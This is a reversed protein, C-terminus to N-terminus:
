HTQTKCIHMALDAYCQVKKFSPPLRKNYEDSSIQFSSGDNNNKLANKTTLSIDPFVNFNQISCSAVVNDSQDVCSASLTSVHKAFRISFLSKIIFYFKMATLTISM